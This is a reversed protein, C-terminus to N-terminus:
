ADQEAEIQKLKLVDGVLTISGTVVVAAAQGKPLLLQAEALAWQVNPQVKM